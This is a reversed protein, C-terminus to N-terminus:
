WPGHDEELWMGWAKGLLIEVGALSSKKSTISFVGITWVRCRQRHQEEGSHGGWRLFYKWWDAGIRTKPAGSTSTCGCLYAM